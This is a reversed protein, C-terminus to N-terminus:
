LTSYRKVITLQYKYHFFVM